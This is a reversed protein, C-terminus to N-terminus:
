DPEPAEYEDLNFFERIGDDLDEVEEQTLQVKEQGSCYADGYTADRALDEIEMGCTGYDTIITITTKWLKQQNDKNSM